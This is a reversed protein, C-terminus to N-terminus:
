RSRVIPIRAVPTSIALTMPKVGMREGSSPGFWNSTKVVLDRTGDLPRVKLNWHRSSEAAIPNGGFAGHPPSLAPYLVSGDGEVSLIESDSTALPGNSVNRFTADVQVEGDSTRSLVATLSAIRIPARDSTKAVAVRTLPRRSELPRSCSALLAVVLLPCLLAGAGRTSPVRGRTDASGM